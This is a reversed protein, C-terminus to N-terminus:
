VTFAFRHLVDLQDSSREPVDGRVLHAPFRDNTLDCVGAAKVPSWM